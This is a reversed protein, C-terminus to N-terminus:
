KPEEELAVGETRHEFDRCIKSLAEGSDAAGFLKVAIAIAREIAESQETTVVAAFLEYRPPSLKYTSFARFDQDEAQERVMAKLQEIETESWPLIGALDRASSYQSLKSLVWALIEPENEGRLGNLQLTKIMAAAEDMDSVICPLKEIGLKKAIRWRHEGDIIQYGGETPRALLPAHFGRKKIERTLKKMYDRGM